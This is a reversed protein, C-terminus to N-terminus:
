EAPVQERHTAFHRHALNTQTAYISTADAPLPAPIRVPVETMRPVLTDTGCLLRAQFQELDGFSALTGALPWADAAALECLLLGRDRGSRNLDSGHVARVHHITMSGAPGMLPEATSLDVGAAGVDIAGCFVGNSHHDHVPGRHSGPVVMLPGNDADVDNVYIGIALIDDNTHPYFAWDQHWEVPAGYGAAKLNLKSSQRRISPGILQRIPDLVTDSRLLADFFPHRLHPQKVRRVRPADPRHSDELDYVEDNAALGRAGELLTAIHGRLKAVTAADLLGDLLLYGRARYHEIQNRTLTM